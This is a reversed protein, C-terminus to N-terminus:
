YVIAKDPRFIPHIYYKLIIDAVPLAFGCDCILELYKNYISSFGQNIQKIHFRLGDKSIGMIETSDQKITFVSSIRLSGAFAIIKKLFFKNVIHQFYDNNIDNIKLTRTYSFDNINQIVKHINNNRDKMICINWGNIIACHSCTLIANNKWLIIRERNAQKITIGCRICKKTM